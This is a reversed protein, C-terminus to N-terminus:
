SWDVILMALTTRVRPISVGLLDKAGEAHCVVCWRIHRYTHLVSLLTHTQRGERQTRERLRSLLMQSLACAKRPEYLDMDYKSSKSNSAAASASMSLISAAAHAARLAGSFM